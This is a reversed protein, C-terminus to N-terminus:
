DLRAFTGFGLLDLLDLVVNVVSARLEGTNKILKIYKASIASIPSPTCVTIPSLAKCM